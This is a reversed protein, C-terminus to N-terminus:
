WRTADATRARPWTSWRSVPTAPTAATQLETNTRLDYSRQGILLGGVLLVDDGIFDASILLGPAGFEATLTSDAVRWVRIKDDLSVGAILNGSSSLRATMSIGFAGPQSVLPTTVAAGTRANWVRATGDRSSTSLLRGDASFSLRSVHNTHPGIRVDPAGTRWRLVEVSGDDHGVALRDHDTPDFAIASAISAFKLHAQPAGSDVSYVSVGDNGAVAVVEEDGSLGM